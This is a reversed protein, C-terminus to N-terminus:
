RDADVFCAQPCGRDYLHELYQAHETDCTRQRWAWDNQEQQKLRLRVGGGGSRRDDARGHFSSDM